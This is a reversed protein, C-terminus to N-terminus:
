KSYTVEWKGSKTYTLKITGGSVQAPIGIEKRDYEQEHQVTDQGISWKIIIKDDFTVLTGFNLTTDPSIIDINNTIVYGPSPDPIVGM